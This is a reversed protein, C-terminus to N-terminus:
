QGVTLTVPKGDRGILKSTLQFGSGMSKYQFPGKGFPDSLEERKLADQGHRAIAIAAALMSSRAQQVAETRRLSSVSPFILSGLHQAPGLSKAEGAEYEKVLADVEDPSRTMAAIMKDYVPGLKKAVDLIEPQSLKQLAVVNPDNQDSFLKLIRQKTGPKRLERIFWGLCLEKEVQMGDIMTTSKPLGAIQKELEELEKAKLQPLNRALVDTAQAEIAYDVLLSIIVANQGITRAMSLTAIVDDVAAKSNGEEFRVQARACALRSLKRSQSLHPLVTEIGREYELGWECQSYKTARRLLRLSENAQRLMKSVNADAKGGELVAHLSKTQADDLDPLLSFAQWYVLAANDALVENVQPIEEAATVSVISSFVLVAAISCRMKM